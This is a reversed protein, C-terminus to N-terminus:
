GMPSCGRGTAWMRGICPWGAQYSTWRAMLHLGTVQEDNDMLIDVWFYMSLQVPSLGYRAEWPWAPTARWNSCAGTCILLWRPLQRRECGTRPTCESVTGYRVTKQKGGGRGIRRLASRPV